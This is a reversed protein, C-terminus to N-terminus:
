EEKGIHETTGQIGCPTNFSQHIIKTFTTLKHCYVLKNANYLIPQILYLPGGVILASNITNLQQHWVQFQIVTTYIYRIFFLDNDAQNATIIIMTKCPIKEQEIISHM